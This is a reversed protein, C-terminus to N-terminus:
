NWSAWGPVLRRADEGGAIFQIDVYVESKPLDHALYCERYTPKLHRVCNNYFDLVPVDDPWLDYFEVAKAKFFARVDNDLAIRRSTSLDEREKDSLPKDRRLSFYLVGDDDYAKEVDIVGDRQAQEFIYCHVPDDSLAGGFCDGLPPSLPVAYLTLLAVTAAALVTGISLLQTRHKSIYERM